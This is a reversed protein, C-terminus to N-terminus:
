ISSPYKELYPGLFQDIVAPLVAECDLFILKDGSSWYLYPGDQYLRQGYRSLRKVGEPHEIFENPIPTNRVEYRAWESNPYQTVNVQIFNSRGQLAYRVFYTLRQPYPALTGKSPELAHRYSGSQYPAWGAIDHMLLVGEIPAPQIEPPDLLSPAEARSQATEATIRAQLERHWRADRLVAYHHWAGIIILYALLVGFVAFRNKPSPRIDEHRTEPVPLHFRFQKAWLAIGLFLALTTQWLLDLTNGTWFSFWAGRQTGDVFAISVAALASCGLATLVVRLGKRKPSSLSLFGTFLIFSSLFCRGAIEPRITGLLPLDIYNWFSQPAHMGAFLDFFHVAGTLGVLSVFIKWSSVKRYFWLVSLLFLGFSVSALFVYLYENNLWYFALFWISHTYIGSIFGMLTLLPIFTWHTSAEGVTENTQTFPETPSKNM